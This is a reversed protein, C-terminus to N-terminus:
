KNDEEEDPTNINKIYSDLLNQAGEGGRMITDRQAKDIKKFDNEGEEGANPNVINYQGGTVVVGKQAEIARLAEMSNLDGDLFARRREMDPKYGKELDSKEREVPQTMRGYQQDWREAQRGGTPRPPIKNIEPQQASENTPSAKFIGSSVTLPAGSLQAAEIAGTAPRQLGETGYEIGSRADFANKTLKMGAEQQFMDEELQRNFNTEPNEDFYPNASTAPLQTSTFPNQVTYGKGALNGRNLIKNADEMTMPAPSTRTGTAGSGDPALDFRGGGDPKIGGGGRIDAFQQGPRTARDDALVQNLEKVQAPDDMRYEKGGVRTVSGGSQEPTSAQQSGNTFAARGSGRGSGATNQPVNQEMWSGIASGAAVATGFGPVMSIGGMVWDMIGGGVNSAADLTAETKVGPTRGSPFNPARGAEPRVRLGPNTRSGRFPIGGDPIRVRPAM